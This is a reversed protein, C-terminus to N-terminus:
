PCVEKDLDPQSPREYKLPDFMEVPPRPGGNIEEMRKVAVDFRELFLQLAEHIVACKTEDREVRHLFKPFKSDYSLFMWWERGTVYLSGHVQLEYDEPLVGDLLYGVHTHRAPCKIEIGGDEGILGDPSCGVRRDDTTVLGVNTIPQGTTLEYWPKAREELIQGIEIDMGQWSPLPGGQWYEAVKKELFSKPGQGTKIKYKPTVLQDFESATPIGSRAQLWEYTGQKAPHIKV